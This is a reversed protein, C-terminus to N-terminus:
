DPWVPTEAEGGCYRRITDILDRRAAEFADRTSAWTGEVILMVNATSATIKTFDAQILDLRCIVRNAADAYVFERPHVRAATDSGLPTFTEDGQAMRLHVPLVLRDLDHAGLSLLWKISAINYVDVLNNISPLRGRKWANELLRPCAPRERKANVGVAGYIRCFADLEPARHISPLDPFRGRLEDVAEAMESLLAAPSPGITVDKFVLIGVRLGLALCAEAAVFVAEGEAM